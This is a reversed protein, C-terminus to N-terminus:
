HGFTIWGLLGLFTAVLTLGMTLPYAFWGSARDGIAAATIAAVLIPFVLTTAALRLTGAAVTGFGRDGGSSQRELEIGPVVRTCRGRSCRRRDRV